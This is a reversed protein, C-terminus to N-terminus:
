GPHDFIEGMVKRRADGDDFASGTAAFGGEEAEYRPIEGGGFAADESRRSLRHLISYKLALFEAEDKLM